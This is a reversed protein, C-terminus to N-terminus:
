EEGPDAQALLAVEARCTNRNDWCVATRSPYLQMAPVVVRGQWLVFAMQVHRTCKCAGGRDGGEEGGEDGCGEGRTGSLVAASESTSPSEEESESKESDVSLSENSM